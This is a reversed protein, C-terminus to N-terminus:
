YLRRRPIGTALSVQRAADGRAVGDRVLRDVSSRAALIADERAGSAADQGGSVGM